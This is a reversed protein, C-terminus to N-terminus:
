FIKPSPIGDPGDGGKAFFPSLVRPCLPCFPLFSVKPSAPLWPRFRGPLFCCCLKPTPSAKGFNPCCSKATLVPPKSTHKGSSLDSSTHILILNFAQCAKGTSPVPSLFTQRTQRLALHRTLSLLDLVLAEIGFITDILIKILFISLTSLTFIFHVEFFLFVAAAALADLLAAVMVLTGAPDLLLLLADLVDVLVDPGVLLSPDLVMQRCCYAQFGLTIKLWMRLQLFAPKIVRYTKCTTKMSSGQQKPHFNQPFKTIKTEHLLRYYTTSTSLHM